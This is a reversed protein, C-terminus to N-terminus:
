LAVKLAGTMLINLLGLPILVKWALAQLQDERLRPYTFRVWFMLFAVFMYPIMFWKFFWAADYNFVSLIMQKDLGVAELFKLNHPLYILISLVLPWIGCAVLFAVFLKSRFVDQYAYRPLVLFRLEKPTAPGTYPRYTREYVAM